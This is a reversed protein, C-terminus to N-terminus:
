IALWALVTVVLFVVAVAFWLGDTPRQLREKEDLYAQARANREAIAPDVYGFKTEPFDGQKMKRNQVRCIDAPEM